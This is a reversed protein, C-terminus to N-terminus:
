ARCWRDALPPHAISALLQSVATSQTRGSRKLKSFRFPMRPSKSESNLVVWHHSGDTFRRAAHKKCGAIASSSRRLFSCCCNCSFLLVALSAWDEQGLAGTLRGLSRAGLAQAVFSSISRVIARGSGSFLGSPTDSSSTALETRRSYVNM